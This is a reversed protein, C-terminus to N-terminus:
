PQFVEVRHCSTGLHLVEDSSLAAALPEARWWRFWSRAVFGILRGIGTLVLTLLAEGEFLAPAATRGTLDATYRDAHLQLEERYYDPGQLKDRSDSKGPPLEPDAM